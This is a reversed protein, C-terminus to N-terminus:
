PSRGDVGDPATGNGVVKLMSAAEKGGRAVPCRDILRSSVSGPDRAGRGVVYHPYRAPRAARRRWGARLLAGGQHEPAYRPLSMVTASRPLWGPFMRAHRVCWYPGRGVSTNFSSVTGIGVGCAPSTRIRTCAIGSLRFSRSRIVPPLM